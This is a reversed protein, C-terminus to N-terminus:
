CQKTNEALQDRVADLKAWIHVWSHFDILRYGNRPYGDYLKTSKFQLALLYSWYKDMHSYDIAGPFFMSNKYYYNTYICSGIIDTIQLGVTLRSDAFMPAEIIKDFSKGTDHGFIFSLHSKAVEVNLNHMRSDIIMLGNGGDVSEELLAHFREVLYQLAMTYLSKKDTPSSPNKIFIISFFWIGYNQCLLLVQKIFAHYRRNNSNHRQTLIHGKVEFYEARKTGIEKSFFRTKLKLYDRDIKKWDDERVCISNLTFVPTEGNLLPEHHTDPSGSEDIYFFYMIWFLFDVGKPTSKTAVSLIFELGM